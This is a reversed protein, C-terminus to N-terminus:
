ENTEGKIFEILEVIQSSDDCSDCDYGSCGHIQSELLKIIRQREDLTGCFVGSEYIDKDRENM